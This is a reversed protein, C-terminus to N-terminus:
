RFLQESYSIVTQLTKLRAVLKDDSEIVTWPAIPTSTRSLMEDVAEEYEDWKKRNRWDEETIKWQKLPDNQRQNFRDLQEDKSIELWFKVLGGGSEVYAQEMENIENYARKWEDDKCFGEVREVLVRGYWSRDFITVHGAKPFHTYFRWLFHHALETQDPAGVPVVDYGRPNMQRVLRMINGGKGAADWGEYVIMLPIKRKYLLYHIDRIKNEYELLNKQYEEKTYSEPAKSKRRVENKKPRVMDTKRSNKGHSEAYAIRKELARVITSYVKLVTHNKDTAEVITWPANQNDTEAIFQEIIPLYSEYHRHFDWDGHTIMWSTLPDNEREDLRKKQEQQSIHLFFKLIVAGDDALQQEFNNITTISHKLGKKWEIGSIQEALARSYWSRAFIAMRGKQPTRVWFRWLLLHAREDDTPSGTSHMSFGRPDLFRILENIVMTIGSANWGEVVIVTPIKHDRLSRQLVSMQQQLPEIAKKFTKDDTKKTLDYQEFM